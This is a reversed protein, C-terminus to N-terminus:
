IFEPKLGSSYRIKKEFLTIFGFVSTSDSFEASEFLDPTDERGELVKGNLFASFSGESPVSKDVESIRFDFLMELPDDSTKSIFRNATASYLNVKSGSVESGMSIKTCFQPAIVLAVIIMGAFLPFFHSTSM